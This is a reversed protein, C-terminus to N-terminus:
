CLRDVIMSLMLDEPAGKETDSDDWYEDSFRYPQYEWRDSRDMFKLRGLPIHTTSSRTIPPRRGRSGFEKREVEVYLYCQQPIIFIHHDLHYERGTFVDLLRKTVSAVVEAPITTKGPTGPKKRHGM